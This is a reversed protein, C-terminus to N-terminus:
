EAGRCRKVEKGRFHGLQHGMRTREGVEEGESIKKGPKIGGREWGGLTKAKGVGGRGKRRTDV